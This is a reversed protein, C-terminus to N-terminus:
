WRGKRNWQVHGKAFVHSKSGAGPPVLKRLQRHDWALLITKKLRRLNSVIKKDQNFHDINKYFAVM